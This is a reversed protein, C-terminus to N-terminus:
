DEIGGEPGPRESRHILVLAIVLAVVIGTNVGLETMVRSFHAGLETRAGATLVHRVASIIGIILFPKLQFGGERFHAVVTTLLELVIIVFLVGEILTLMAETFPADTRFVQIVSHVLSAAAIGVLVVAVGYQMLDEAWV